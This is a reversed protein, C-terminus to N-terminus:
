SLLLTMDVKAIFIWSQINKSMSYKLVNSLYSYIYMYM